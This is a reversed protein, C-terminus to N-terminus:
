LNNLLFWFAIELFLKLCNLLLFQAKFPYLTHACVYFTALKPYLHLQNGYYNYYPNKPYDMDYNNPYNMDYNNPYDVHYAHKPYGISDMGMNDISKSSSGSFFCGDDYLRVLYSLLKPEFSHFEGNRFM